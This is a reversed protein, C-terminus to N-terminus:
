KVNQALLRDLVTTLLSLLPNILAKFENLFNSLTNDNIQNNSTPDSNNNHTAQAYTLSRKPPTYDNVTPQQTAECNTNKTININNVVNKNNQYNGHNNTAPKRLQQLDKYIKCGKYNAPHDSKCLACKAPTTTSKTCSTSPHNDGCRVCRPSYSCYKRSHGYDQCNLCQIIDKRKHPEEIKVKTHLLSTVHFLETNIVAPFKACPNIYECGPQPSVGNNPYFDAHAMSGIYGTVGMATHIVDVFTANNQHLRENTETWYYWSRAFSPGSPDLGTIRGIKMSTIQLFKRGCAGLTHAGLSHGIMHIKDPMVIRLEVLRILFYSLVEGVMTCRNAVKFYNVINSYHAWDLTLINYDDPYDNLYANKITFVGSEEYIGLWGHTLLIVPKDKKWTHIINSVDNYDIIYAVIKSNEKNELKWYEFKMHRSKKILNQPTRFASLSKMWEQDKKSGDAIADNIPISTPKRNKDQLNKNQYEAYNKQEQKSIRKTESRRLHRLINMSSANNLIFLILLTCYFFTYGIIMNKM